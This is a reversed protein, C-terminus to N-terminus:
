AFFVHCACFFRASVWELRHSSLLAAPSLTHFAALDVAAIKAVTSNTVDDELTTRVAAALVM